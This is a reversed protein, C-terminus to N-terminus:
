TLLLYFMLPARTLFRVKTMMDIFNVELNSREAVSSGQVSLMLERACVLRVGPACWACVCVCV